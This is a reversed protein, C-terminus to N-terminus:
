VCFEFLVPLHRDFTPRFWVACHYPILIILFQMVGIKKIGTKKSAIEFCKKQFYESKKLRFSM